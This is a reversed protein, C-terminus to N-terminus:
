SLKSSLTSPPPTTIPFPRRPYSSLTRRFAVLLTCIVAQPKDSRSTSLRFKRLHEKTPTSVTYLRSESAQQCPLSHTKFPYFAMIDCWKIHQLLPLDFFLLLYKRYLFRHPQCSERHCDRSRLLVSVTCTLTGRLGEADHPAEREGVARCGCGGVGCWCAGRWVRMVLFYITDARRWGEVEGFGWRQQIYGCTRGRRM